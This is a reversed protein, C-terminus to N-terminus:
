HASFYGVRFLFVSPQSSQDCRVYFSYITYQYFYQRCKLNASSTLQKYHYILVLTATYSVATKVLWLSRNFLKQVILYPNDNWLCLQKQALRKGLKREWEQEQLTLVEYSSVIVVFVSFAQVLIKGSRLDLRIFCTRFKSAAQTFQLGCYSNCVFLLSKLGTQKTASHTQTKTM